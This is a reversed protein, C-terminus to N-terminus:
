PPPMTMGGVSLPQTTFACTSSGAPLRRVRMWAQARGGGLQGLAQAREAMRRPQREDARAPPLGARGSLKGVEDPQRRRADGLV